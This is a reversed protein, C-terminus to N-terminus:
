LTLSLSLAAGMHDGKGKEAALDLHLTDFPSLGIGASWVNGQSGELDHRYGLRLQAWKNADLELGARLWQRQQGDFSPQETKTLDAELTAALWGNDYAGGLTVSPKLSYSFQRGAVPASDIHQRVLDKGSLGLRWDGKQYALGLDLNFASKEVRYQSDDWNSKDFNDVDAQYLYSYLRQAKPSVGLMLRGGDALSWGHSFALGLDAVAVGLVQANSKLNGLDQSPLEAPAWNLDSEDINVLGLFQARVDAFLAGSLRKGPLAVALGLDLEGALRDGNMQRLADQWQGILQEAQQQTTGSPDRQIAELQDNLKQFHDVQDQLNNQDRGRAALGPLLVGVDDGDNFNSLLAPNYFSAALYSANASGAGGMAQVRADQAQAVSLTLLSLPFLYLASKM